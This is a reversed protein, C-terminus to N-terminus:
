AGNCFFSAVFGGASASAVTWFFGDDLLVWSQTDLGVALFGIWYGVTTGILLRWLSHWPHEKARSLCMVLIAPLGGFIAAFYVFAVIMLCSAVLDMPDPEFAQYVQMVLGVFAGTLAAAVIGAAIRSAIWEAARKARVGTANTESKM